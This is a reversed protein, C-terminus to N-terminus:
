HVQSLEQVTFILELFGSTGRRHCNIRPHKHITAKWKLAKKGQTKRKAKKRYFTEGVKGAEPDM